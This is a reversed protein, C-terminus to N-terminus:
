AQKMLKKYAKMGAKLVDLPIPRVSTATWRPSMRGSTGQYWKFLKVGSDNIACRYKRHGHEFDVFVAAVKAHQAPQAKQATVKFVTM